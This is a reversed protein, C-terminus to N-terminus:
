PLNCIEQQTVNQRNMKNKALFQIIRSMVALTTINKALEISNCSEQQQGLVNSRAIANSLQTIGTDGPISGPQIM